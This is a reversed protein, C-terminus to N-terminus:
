DPLSIPDDTADGGAIERYARSLREYADGPLESAAQVINLVDGDPRDLIARFLLGTLENTMM